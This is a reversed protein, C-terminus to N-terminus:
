TAPPQPIVYRASEAQKRHGNPFKDKRQTNEGHSHERRAGKIEYLTRATRLSKPCELYSKIYHSLKCLRRGYQIEVDPKSKSWIVATSMDNQVLRRFKIWIASFIVDHGNESPPDSGNQIKPTGYHTRQFAWM